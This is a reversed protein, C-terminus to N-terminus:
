ENQREMDATRREQRTTGEHRRRNGCMICSCPKPTKAMRGLIGTATYYRRRKRLVRQRQFRRWDRTRHM